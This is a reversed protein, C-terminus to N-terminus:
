HLRSEPHKDVKIDERIRSPRKGKPLRFTCVLRHEQQVLDTSANLILQLKDGDTKDLCQFINICQTYLSRMSKGLHHEIEDSLAVIRGDTRLVMVFDDSNVKMQIGRSLEIDQLYKSGGLHKEKILRAL